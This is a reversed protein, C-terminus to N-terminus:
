KGLGDTGLIGHSYIAASRAQMKGHPRQAQPRAVLDDRGRKGKYGTAIADQKFPGCHDKDIGVLFGEVDVGLADLCGDGGLGFRNQRHMHKAGIM